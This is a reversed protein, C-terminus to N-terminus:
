SAHAHMTRSNESGIDSIHLEIIVNIDNNHLETDLYEFFSNISSSFVHTSSERHKTLVCVDSFRELLDYMSLSKVEEHYDMAYNLAKCMTKIKFNDNKIPTSM